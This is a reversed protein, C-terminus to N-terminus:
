SCGSRGSARRARWRWRAREQPEHIVRYEADIIPQDDATPAPPPYRESELRIWTM